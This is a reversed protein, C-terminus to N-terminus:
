KWSFKRLGQLFIILVGALLLRVFYISWEYTSHIDYFTTIVIMFCTEYIVILGILIFLLNRKFNQRIIFYYFTLFTMILILLSFVFQFLFTPFLENSLYDKIIIILDSIYAIAVLILCWLFTYKTIHGLYKHYLESVEPM